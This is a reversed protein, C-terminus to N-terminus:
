TLFYPLCLKLGGKGVKPQELKEIPDKQSNVGGSGQQVISTSLCFCHNCFIERIIRFYGNSRDIKDSAKPLLM